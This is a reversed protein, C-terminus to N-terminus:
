SQVFNDNSQAQVLFRDQFEIPHSLAFFITGIKPLLCSTEENHYQVLGNMADQKQFFMKNLEVLRRVTGYYDEAVKPQEWSWFKQEFHTPKSGCLRYSFTIIAIQLIGRASHHHILGVQLLRFLYSVKPVFRAMKVMYSVLPFLKILKEILLISWPLFCLYNYTKFSLVYELISYKFLFIAKFVLLYIVTQSIHLGSTCYSNNCSKVAHNELYRNKIFSKM